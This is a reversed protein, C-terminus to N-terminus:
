RRELCTSIRAKTPVVNTMAFVAAQVTEGSVGVTCDLNTVAAGLVGVWLGLCIANGSTDWLGAPGWFRCGLERKCGGSYDFVEYLLEQRLQNRTRHFASQAPVSVRKVIVKDDVKHRTHAPQHSCRTPAPMAELKQWCQTSVNHIADLTLRILIQRKPVPPAQTLIGLRIVANHLPALTLPRQLILNERYFIPQGLLM